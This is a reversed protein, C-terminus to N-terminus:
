DADRHLFGRSILAQLALEPDTEDLPGNVAGNFGHVVRRGSIPVLGIEVTAGTEIRISGSAPLDPRMGWARRRNFLLKPNAEFVHFHATLQVPVASTNTVKVSTAPIGANIEVPDAAPIIQGPYM